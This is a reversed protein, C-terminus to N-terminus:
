PVECVSGGFNALVVLSEWEEQPGSVIVAELHGEGVLLGTLVVIVFM